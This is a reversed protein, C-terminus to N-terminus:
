ASKQKDHLEQLVEAIYEVNLFSFNLNILLDPTDGWRTVMKTISQSKAGAGKIGQRDIVFIGIYKQNTAGLDQEVVEIRVINEWAVFNKGWGYPVTIGKNSIIAIPKRMMLIFFMLGGGGFFVISIVGIITAVIEGGQMLRLGVVVFIFCILVFSFNGLLTRKIVVKGDRNTKVASKSLYKTVTAGKTNVKSTIANEYKKRM